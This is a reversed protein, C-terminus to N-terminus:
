SSKWSLLRVKEMKGVEPFNTDNLMVITCLLEGHANVVTMLHGYREKEDKAVRGINLGRTRLEKKVKRTVFVPVEKSVLSMSSVDMNVILQPPIANGDSTGMASEMVAALALANYM